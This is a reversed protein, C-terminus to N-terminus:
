QISLPRLHLDGCPFQMQRGGQVEVLLQWHDDVGTLKGRTVEGSQSTLFVWEGLFALRSRYEQMFAPELIGKRLDILAAIVARLFALRQLPLACHSQICTAPFMAQDDPPVSEPLLNIGIGLVLASLRQGQWSTEALVGATKKRNLLVDNPWKVQAELNSVTKIARCVSLAGLFSFMSLQEQEKDSPILILSFTLSSGASSLWKRGLRGRGASQKEAFVLTFEASYSAALQLARENTSDTQKYFHVGPLPLGILASKLEQEHITAAM